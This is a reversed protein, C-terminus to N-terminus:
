PLHPKEAPSVPLDGVIEFDGLNTDETKKKKKDEDSNEDDSDKQIEQLVAPQANTIEILLCNGFLAISINM